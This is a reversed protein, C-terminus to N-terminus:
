EALLHQAIAQYCNWLELSPHSRWGEPSTSIIWCSHDGHANIKVDRSSMIPQKLQVDNNLRDIIGLGLDRGRWHLDVAKGVLPFSNVCVSKIAVPPSGLGLRPDPVGYHTFYSSEISPPPGSAKDVRVWRIPGERMDIVGLSTRGELRIKEQWTGREAMQADIGLSRLSACINDRMHDRLREKVKDFLGM